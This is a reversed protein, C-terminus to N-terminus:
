RKTAKAARDRTGRWRSWDVLLVLLALHHFFPLEMLVIVSVHFGVIVVLFARRFQASLLALPALAEFVTSIAFGVNVVPMLWPWADIWRWADFDILWPRSSHKLISWLMTDSAFIELPQTTLRVIGVLSYTACFVFTSVVLPV